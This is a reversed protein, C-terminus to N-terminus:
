GDPPKPGPAGALARELTDLYEREAPRLPLRRARDLAERAGDRDGADARAHALNLWVGANRPERALVREYADAAEAYRGAAAVANAWAVTVGSDDPLGARAAELMGLAPKARGAAGVILGTLYAMRPDTALAPEARGAEAAHRAAEDPRGLALNLAARNWATATKGIGLYVVGPPLPWGVRPGDAGSVAAGGAAAAYRREALALSEPLYPGLALARVADARAAAEPLGVQAFAARAEALRGGALLKEAPTAGSAPVADAYVTILNRQDPFYRQAVLHFSGVDTGAVVAERWAPDWQPADVAELVVVRSGRAAETVKGPALPLGVWYGHLYYPLFAHAAFVRVPPALAVAGRIDAAFARVPPYVRDAVKFAAHMQYAGATTTAVLLGAAAAAGARPAVRRLAARTGEWLAAAGCGAYVLVVPTAALLYRDLSTRFAALLMLYAAGWGLLVLDPVRAAGRSRGLRVALGGAALLWLLPPLMGRITRGQSELTAGGEMVMDRVVDAAEPVGSGTVTSAATVGRLAPPLHTDFATYWGHGWAYSQYAGLVLLAAAAVRLSRMGWIGPRERLFAAGAVVVAGVAVPVTVAGVARTLAAAGLLIGLGLEESPRSRGAAARVCGALAAVTLALFLAETLRVESFHILRPAVATFLGAAAGAMPGALARALGAVLLVLAVGAARSVWLGARDVDGGALPTALATVAPYVPGGAPMRRWPPAISAEGELYGQAQRMYVAADPYIVEDTPPHWRLLGAV